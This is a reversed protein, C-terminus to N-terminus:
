MTIMSSVHQTKMISLHKRTASRGTHPYITISRRRPPPSPSPNVFFIDKGYPVSLLSVQSSNKHYGRNVYCQDVTVGELNSILGQTALKETLADNWGKEDGAPWMTYADAEGAEYRYAGEFLNECM